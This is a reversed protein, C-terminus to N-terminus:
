AVRRPATAPDPADGPERPWDAPDLTPDIEWHRVAGPEEIYWPLLSRFQDRPMPHFGLTELHPTMWKSDCLRFGWAALHRHLYATAVKSADRVRSFKSEGFYVKGLALGFLGGVLNGHEDWVEVSHAYGAQHAKWFARMIQPTIWTLPVKGERPRACAKMVGAFDQDMTVTFKHKKLLRRVNHSIHTEAPDLVAREGPCWWKMPGIHCVPFLGRAYNEVLTPVSLDESIGILGRESYFRPFAPLWDRRPQPTLYYSLTMLWLRPLLAIRPRKLAYLAGLSWRRFRQMWTEHFRPETIRQPRAVAAGSNSTAGM